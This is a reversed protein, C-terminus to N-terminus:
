RSGRPAGSRGGARRVDTQPICIPRCRVARGARGYDGAAMPRFRMDEGRDCIAQPLRTTVRPRGTGDM